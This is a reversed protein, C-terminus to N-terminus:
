EEDDRHLLEWLDSTSMEEFEPVYREPFLREIENRDIGHSQCTDLLEIRFLIGVDEPSSPRTGRRSSTTVVLGKVSCTEVKIAWDLGRVIDPLSKSIKAMKEKVEPLLKNDYSTTCEVILLETGTSQSRMALVDIESDGLIASNEYGWRVSYGDQGLVGCVILELISGRLSDITHKASELRRRFSPSYKRGMVSRLDNYDFDPEEAEYQAFESHSESYDRLSLNGIECVVQEVRSGLRRISDEVKRYGASGMGSDDSCFDYFLWWTSYDAINSSSPILVAYSYHHGHVFKRVRVKEKSEAGAGSLAVVLGATNSATLDHDVMRVPYGLFVRDLREEDTTDGKAPAMEQLLLQSPTEREVGPKAVFVPTGGFIDVEKEIPDIIQSQIRRYCSDFEKWSSTKMMATISSYASSGGALLSHWLYAVALKYGEFLRQRKDVVEPMVHPHAWPDKNRGFTSDYAVRAMKLDQYFLHLGVIATHRQAESMSEFHKAYNQSVVFRDAIQHLAPLLDDKISDLATRLQGISRTALLPRYFSAVKLIVKGQVSSSPMESYSTDSQFAREVAVDYPAGFLVPRDLLAQILRQLALCAAFGYGLALRDYDAKQVRNTDCFELFSDLNVLRDLIPVMWLSFAVDQSTIDDPGSANSSGGEM